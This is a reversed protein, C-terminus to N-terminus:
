QNNEHALASSFEKKELELIEKALRENYRRALKQKKIVLETMLPIKGPFAIMALMLNQRETFSLSSLLQKVLEVESPTLRKELFVSLNEWDIM